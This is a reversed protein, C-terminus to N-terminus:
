GFRVGAREGGADDFEDVHTTRTHTHVYTLLRVLATGGFQQWILHFSFFLVRCNYKMSFTRM